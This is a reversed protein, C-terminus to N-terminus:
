VVVVGIKRASNARSVPPQHHALYDTKLLCDSDSIVLIGVNSIPNLAPAM